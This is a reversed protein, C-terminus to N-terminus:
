SNNKSENKERQQTQLVEQMYELMEKACKQWSFEKARQLGKQRLVERLSPNQYIQLIANQLASADKPGILIGADAVIEPISTTNSAIVPCGCQMSELVPLGFGEYLSLYISCLSHSFLSSLDEDDVYGIHIIKDQHKRSVEQLKPLFRDRHGGGLVFIVDEINEKEIVKIFNEIVFLLNKRPELTCLSFIYKKDKPLHYKSKITNNKNINFDYYFRDSAGLHTVKIKNEDLRDPFLRLFDDKTYQSNAFYHDNFNLTKGISQMFNKQEKSYNDLIIPIADHLLIFTQIKKQSIQRINSYMSLFCTNDKFSYAKLESSIYSNIFVMLWTISKCFFNIIRYKRYPDLRTRVYYGLSILKSFYDEPEILRYPKFRKNFKISAWSKHDTYLIIEHKKELEKLISIACFFIGSRAPTKSNESILTDANFIIKM